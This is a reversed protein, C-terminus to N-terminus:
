VRYFKAAVDVDTIRTARVNPDQEEKTMLKGRVIIVAGEHLLEAAETYEKGFVILEAEGYHDEVGVFAMLDGRKTLQTRVRSILAVMCVSRRDVNGFETHRHIVDSTIFTNDDKAIKEIVDKYDDLPHGSLYIGITEKEWGLKTMVDLEPLVPLEINIDADSMVDPNLELLTMQGAVNARNAERLRVMMKEIVAFHRARNPELQDFAGSKVLNEVATKNLREIDVSKLFDLLSTFPGHEDRTSIIMDSAGGVSKVGKLGYRIKGDHVSFDRDSENIDPPLVEIGMEVSNRTYRTIQAIQGGMFSTMLAAMLEAPYYAKLWATQYSLVAYCAAHSKNFAYSAFSEMRDFIENAVKEPVGNAVCGPVIKNGDKDKLGHVFNKREKQMVETKKKSMARRVEDSRGYSYGALERVIEMVQEQDILVGYTTGLIPELKPHLYDAKEPNKKNAVYTPIYDMPGPRYLAVGAIIDEFVTPKLRKLFDKMGQSELQFIGDTNGSSILEFVKPDNLKMTSFDIKVGHNEEIQTIADRIVTLTRLGLFDMKLLGLEEITVMTFETSVGNDSFYLPVYEDIDKKAIVVGAAHTGTNRPLGELDLAVRFLKDFREDDRAGRLEDSKELAEKLSIGLVDPVMKAVRDVEGYPIGMVRGVDRIVAKTKLKGFTVIQAVKSAGYKEIVYDLVEGRREYCFDIDFDPMSVREPNLFREFILGYEIPDLDTIGLTYAVISGAGSGRGPGVAIGNDKAFRIFDWVILFYTVFGMNEIIGLEKNARELHKPADAGYRKDLGTMTLERLYEAHTMGEPVEFDPLHRGGFEIEVNCREAVLATNDLAEPHDPFLERMEAESRFYFEDNPFRMRREDALKKGTQICLLADHSDAHERKIYHLDNTAVFPIGTEEHLRNMMPLIKAQEPMHHEQLELFFNEEGFIERFELAEKKAGAYDDSLLKNQVDGALCASLAILGESYQRLLPKDVRPKYYFGKTYAMSVIKMLNKYGQNDKALLVLHGTHKDKTPDRDEMGRMATYVECGLIPKVGAARAAKYFDIVGFMNGHDTIALSKMGNSKAADVLENIRAAGDLLSYESHVHLHIFAM